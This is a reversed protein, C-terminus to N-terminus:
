RSPAPTAAAIAGAVVYRGGPSLLNLLESVSAGGVVDAVDVRRM